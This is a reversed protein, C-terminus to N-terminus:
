NYKSNLYDEHFFINRLRCLIKGHFNKGVIKRDDSSGDGWFSNSSVKVLPRLGTNLLFDILMPNQRFKLELVRYMYYVKNENWKNEAEEDSKVFHHIYKGNM